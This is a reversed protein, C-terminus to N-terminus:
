FIDIFYLQPLTLLCIGAIRGGSKDGRRWVELGSVPTYDHGYSTECAYNYGDTGSGGISLVPSAWGPGTDCNPDGRPRLVFAHSTIVTTLLATVTVGSTYFNRFLGM